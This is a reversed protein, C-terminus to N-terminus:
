GDSHLDGDMLVLCHSKGGVLTKHINPTPDDLYVTPPASKGTKHLSVM